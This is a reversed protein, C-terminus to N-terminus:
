RPAEAEFVVAFPRPLARIDNVVRVRLFSSLEGFAARLEDAGEGVSAMRGWRARQGPNRSRVVLGLALEALTNERSMYRGFVAASEIALPNRSWQANVKAALECASAVLLKARARPLPEVVRASAFEVFLGPQVQFDDDRTQPRLLGEAVLENVLMNGIVTDVGFDQRLAQASIRARDPPLGVVRALVRRSAARLTMADVGFYRRDSVLTTVKM